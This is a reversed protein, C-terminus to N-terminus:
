LTSSHLERNKRVLDLGVHENRETGTAYGTLDIFMITALQRKSM